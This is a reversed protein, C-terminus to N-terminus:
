AHAREAEREELWLWRRHLWLWLEPRAHIRPAFSDNVAKMRQHDDDTEPLEIPWFELRFRFSRGIRHLMVGFVPAGTRRAVISPLPTTLAPHGLFPVPIGGGLHQDVMVAVAGGSKLARPLWRLGKDRAHYQTGFRERAALLVTDLARQNLPRYIIHCPLLGDMSFALAGLEWNSHHSAALIVGRGSRMAERVPADGVVEIRRMLRDRGRFYVAPLEFGTRGLEAFAERAIRRRWRAPRDPYVRALNNMAIRRHRGDLLFALRGLGAGLAGMARVPLMGALRLVWRVLREAM